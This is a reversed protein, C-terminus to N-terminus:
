GPAVRMLGRDHLVQAMLAMFDIVESIWEVAAGAESPALDVRLPLRPRCLLIALVQCGARDSSGTVDAIQARHFPRVGAKEYQRTASRRMKFGSPEGTAALAAQDERLVAFLGFQHRQECGVDANRDAFHDFPERRSSNSPTLRVCCPHDVRRNKRNGPATWRMPLRLVWGTGEFGIGGASASGAPRFVPRGAHVRRLTAAAANRHGRRPTRDTKRM